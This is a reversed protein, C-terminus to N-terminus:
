INLIQCYTNNYNINLLNRPRRVEAQQNGTSSDYQTSDVYDYSISADSYRNINYNIRTELGKRYSNSDMNKATSGGEPHNAFGNIENKLKASYFTQSIDFKNLITNVAYGVEYQM